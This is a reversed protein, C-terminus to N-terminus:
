YAARGQTQACFLIRLSSRLSQHTSNLSSPSVYVLSGGSLVIRRIPHEFRYKSRLFSSRKARKQVEYCWTGRLKFGVFTITNLMMALFGKFFIAYPKNKAKLLRKFTVRKTDVYIWITLSPHFTIWKYRWWRGM